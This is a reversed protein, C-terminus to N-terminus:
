KPYGFPNRRPPPGGQRSGFSGRHRIGEASLAFISLVVVILLRFNMLMMKLTYHIYIKQHKHITNVYIATARTCNSVSSHIISSSQTLCKYVFHKLSTYTYSITTILPSNGRESRLRNLFIFKAYYQLM